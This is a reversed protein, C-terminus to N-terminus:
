PALEERSTALIQLRYFVRKSHEGPPLQLTIHGPGTKGPTFVKSAPQVNKWSGPRLTASSQITATIGTSTAVPNWNYSAQISGDQVSFRIGPVQGADGPSTGVAFEMLNGASDHDPDDKGSMGLNGFQLYEWWDGLSDNDHDLEPYSALFVLGAFEPHDIFPNRNGQWHTFVRHNRKQEVRDVPDLHHWQILTRLKGFRSTAADPHDSLQLNSTGPDNGDYRIAMYFCSRAIDGKEEDRPEWSDHDKSCGPAPFQLPLSKEPDSNDFFLSGRESNVQVDSPRLNFLDSNDPGDNGIGFNRPWLHERNWNGIAGGNNDKPSTADTYILNVRSANAASADLDQFPPWSYRVQEHDDIIDHLVSQLAEGSLGAAPAYYQPPPSWQDGAQSNGIVTLGTLIVPICKRLTFM